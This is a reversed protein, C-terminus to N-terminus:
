ESDPGFNRPSLISAACLSLDNVVKDQGYKVMFQALESVAMIYEYEERVEPDSMFNEMEESDVVFM